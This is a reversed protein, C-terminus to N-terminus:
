FTDPWLQKFLSLFLRNNEERFSIAYRGVDSYGINVHMGNTQLRLTIQASTWGGANYIAWTHGRGNLMGGDVVWPQELDWGQAQGDEFDERYVEKATSQALGKGPLIILSIGIVLVLLCSGMFGSILLAKREM